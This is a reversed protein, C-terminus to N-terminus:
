QELEMPGHSNPCAPLTRADIHIRRAQAGCTSCRFRLIRYRLSAGPLTAGAGAGMSRLVASGLTVLRSRSSVGVFEDGIMVAAATAQADNAFVAELADAADSVPCDAPLELVPMGADTAEADLLIGYDERSV